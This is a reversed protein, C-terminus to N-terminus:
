HVRNEIEWHTRIVRNLRQADEDTAGSLSSLYYRREGSEEDGLQRISAVMVLSTLGAWREGSSVGELAETSWV